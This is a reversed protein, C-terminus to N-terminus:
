PRPSSTATARAKHAHRARLIRPRCAACLLLAAAWTIVTMSTAGCGCGVALDKPLAGGGGSGADPSVGGIGGVGLHDELGLVQGSTDHELVGIDFASARLRYAPQGAVLERDPPSAPGFLAPSPAAGILPSGSVPRFDGSTAAAFGADAAVVPSTLDSVDTGSVAFDGGSVISVTAANRNAVADAVGVYVNGFSRLEHRVASADGVQLAASGPAAVGIFDNFLLTTRIVDTQGTSDSSANGGAFAFAFSPNGQTPSMRFVNGRVLVTKAITNAASSGCAFDCAGLSAHFGGPTEFWNYELTLDAGAGFLSWATTNRVVSHRLHLEGGYQNIGHEAGDVTSFEITAEGAGVEFGTECGEARVRQVRHAGGIVRLCAANTSTANNAGRIVVDRVVIPSGALTWAARPPQPPDTGPFTEVAAGAYEFVPPNQPDEGRVLVPMASTGADVNLFVRYHYTGPAIVVEDGPKAAEIDVHSGADATIRITEAGASSFALVLVLGGPRIMEECWLALGYRQVSPLSKKM